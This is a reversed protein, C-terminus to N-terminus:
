KCKYYPQAIHSIYIYINLDPKLDFELGNLICNKVYVPNFVLHKELSRTNDHPIM